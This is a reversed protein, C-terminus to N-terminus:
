KGLRFTVIIAIVVLLEILTFAKRQRLLEHGQAIAVAKNIQVLKESGAFGFEEPLAIGQCHDDLGVGVDCVQLAIDKEELFRNTPHNEIIAVMVTKWPSAFLRANWPNSDIQVIGTSVYDRCGRGVTV